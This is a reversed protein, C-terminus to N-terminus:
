RMCFPLPDFKSIEKNAIKNNIQSIFNIPNKIDMDNFDSFNYDWWKIKLFSEIIEESFRYKIIKAPNGGVIAYPPVNKTVVSNAAIVAGDGISINPKLTVDAGIWVDNGIILGQNNDKLNENKFKHDYIENNKRFIIFDPDYTFSSTSIWEVPHRTGFIGVDRAISCYRGCKTNIPLQSWSYSFSGMEWVNFGALFATYPEILCSNEYNLWNADHHRPEGNLSFFINKEALEQKIEHFFKKM